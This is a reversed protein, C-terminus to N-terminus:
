STIQALCLGVTARPAPWTKFGSTIWSAQTPFTAEANPWMGHFFTSIAGFGEKTRHIAREGVEVKRTEGGKTKHGVRPPQVDRADKAFSRLLYLRLAKMALDCLSRHLARQPYTPATNSGVRKGLVVTCDRPDTGALCIHKQMVVLPDNNAADYPPPMRSFGAAEVHTTIRFDMKTSGRPPGTTSMEIIRVAPLSSLADGVVESALHHCPVTVEGSCRQFAVDRSMWINFTEEPANSPADALLGSTGKNRADSLEVL